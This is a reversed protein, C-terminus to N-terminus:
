LKREKVLYEFTEWLQKFKFEYTNALSVFDPGNAGHQELLEIDDTIKWCDLIQQELDFRYPKAAPQPFEQPEPEGCHLCKRPYEQKMSRSYLHNCSM